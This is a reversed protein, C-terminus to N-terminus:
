VLDHIIYVPLRSAFAGATTVRGPRERRASRGFERGPAEALSASAAFGLRLLCGGTPNLSDTGFHLPEAKKNQNPSAFTLRM